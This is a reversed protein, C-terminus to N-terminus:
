AAPEMPLDPSHRVRGQGDVTIWGAAPDQGALWAPGEATGLITLCTAHVEAAALDAALVTAQRCDSDAPEGTRPDIIHHIRAGTTGRWSRRVVSSTAVAAQRPLELVGLPRGTLPHEIGIRWPPDAPRRWAVLDGGADILGRPAAVAGAAAQVSWGKVFGGLDIGIGQPLHVTKHDHDIHVRPTAAGPAARSPPRPEPVGIADFDVAYGLRALEAGLFPSFLGDTREQHACAEDLVRLFLESVTVPGGAGAGARSVDSGPLFRSFTREVERLWALVAAAEGPPLVVMLETGM